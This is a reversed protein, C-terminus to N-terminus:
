EDLVTLKASPGEVTRITPGNVRKKRMHFELTPTPKRRGHASDWPFTWFTPASRVGREKPSTAFRWTQRLEKAHLDFRTVKGDKFSISVFTRGKEHDLGLTCNPQPQGAGSLFIPTMSKLPGWDKAIAPYVTATLRLPLNEDAHSDLVAALPAPDGKAISGMLGTTAAVLLVAEEGM